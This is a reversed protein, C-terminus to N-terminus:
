GAAPPGGGRRPRGYWRFREIAERMEERSLLVPTGLQLTRWYQESLTELEHALALAHDLDTGYVVMGHNAMLCARRGALAAAVADSLAQTGFTAYRACRVSNGGFRAVMYHFAPIAIRQCALATAFPSHAHVIAGAGPERRYLDAHLRWESSPALLAASHGDFDTAVMDDAHCRPPAMGSPTILMGDHTRVSVNGASGVSLGSRSMDRAVALLHRRLSLDPRSAPAPAPDTGPPHEAM